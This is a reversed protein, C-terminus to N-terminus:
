VNNIYLFDDDSYTSTGILLAITNHLDVYIDGVIIKVLFKGPSMANLGRIGLLATILWLVVVSIDMRNFPSVIYLM